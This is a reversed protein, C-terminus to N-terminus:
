TLWRASGGGEAKAPASSADAVWQFVSKMTKRQSRAAAFLSQSSLLRLCDSCLEELRNRISVLTQAVVCHRLVPANISNATTTAVRKKKWSTIRSHTALIAFSQLSKTCM